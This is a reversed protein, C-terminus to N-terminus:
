WDPRTWSETSNRRVALSRSRLQCGARILMKVMLVALSCTKEQSCSSRMSWSVLVSGINERNLMIKRRKNSQSQALPIHSDTELLFPSTLNCKGPGSLHPIAEHQFTSAM